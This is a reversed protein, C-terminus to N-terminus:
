FIVVMLTSNRLNLQYRCELFKFQNVTMFTSLKISSREKKGLCHGLAFPFPLLGPTHEVYGALFVELPLTFCFGNGRIKLLHAHLM